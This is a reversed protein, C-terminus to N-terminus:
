NSVKALNFLGQQILNLALQRLEKDGLAMDALLFQKKLLYQKARKQDHKLVWDINDVLDCYKVTQAEPSITQLRKAELEKRAAKGLGPYAAATFVDTLEVVRTTIIRAEADSYEFNLLIDLLENKTTDTDELLDHCLGIEYGLAFAPKALTAVVVPHNCYPHATSKIVQGDHKKAVWKTLLEPPTM